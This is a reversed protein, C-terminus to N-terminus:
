RGTRERAAASHAARPNIRRPMGPGVLARLLPDRTGGWDPSKPFMRRSQSKHRELFASLIQAEPTPAALAAAADTLPSTSKQGYQNLGFLLDTGATSAPNLFGSLQAPHVVAEAIDAPTAFPSFTSFDAVLPKAGGKLQFLGQEYSPLDGLEAAQQERGQVGAAALAGAKFPHEMATNAAFGVTGRLWPYFWVARTLYRRDFESLRDYAIGERNARKAVWDVKAAQAANMNHEAPNELKDLLEKFKAPTDFGAKRAEYAISNFRFPADAHKAWWTAGRAAVRGAINNGEHPMASFSHQGAAALARMRDEDGLEHFLRVSKAIELPHASGQLINTSANTLVRTGVHGIKFYVTAATVASNISDAGHAIHGRPGAAPKALDGLVNHDVWRFGEPAPTGIGVHRDSAFRDRLGPVLDEKFAHLAANIGAVDDNTVKAKGLIENVATPIKAHEAGPIRVLVDRSSRRAAAGTQIAQNRHETTNAFRVIQRYHRAAQGTIDKPVVGHSINIGENAHSTIPARPVGVVPSAASAAASKPAKPESSAYSVHGRGPRASEGGQLGTPKVRNAAQRELEAIREDAISMAGRLRVARETEAVPGRGLARKNVKEFIDPNLAEKLKDIQQTRAQWKAAIPHDPNAAIAAEIKQEARDRMEQTVTKRLTSKPGSAGSPQGARNVGAAQRQARANEANRFRVEGPDVAGFLGGAAKDLAANHEKELADLRARAAPVTLPASTEQDFRRQLQARYGRIRDLAPSIGAKGPTPKEFIAGARFRGPADVAAQLAEPARVGYRTLIEDGRGQVNALRRDTEALQPHDAENVIVDGHENTTLLGRKEVAQYLKAVARNLPPAVGKDAQALHFAAAVEPPTNTSTLELAAQDIRSQGPHIKSSLRQASQELLQAPVDRLRQQVRATEDISGGVRKNMYSAVRGEPNTDLAHQGVKDHLAQVARPLPSSSPHLPVQTDGVSILRPRVPPKSVAAKALEGVSGGESAVRGIAAGRAGVSAVGSILPLLTMATQFPDALPHEVSHVSGQVYGHALALESKQAAKYQRSKSGHLAGEVMPKEIAEVGQVIGGPITKVDHAALGIKGAAWHAGHEISGLIGGGSKKRKVTGVTPIGQGTPDDVTPVASGTSRTQAIQDLTGGGAATVVKAGRRQRAIQDLSGM